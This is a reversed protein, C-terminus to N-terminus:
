LRKCLIVDRTPPVHLAEGTDHQHSEGASDPTVGYTEGFPTPIVDRTAWDLEPNMTQESTHNHKESGEVATSPAGGKLFVRGTSAPPSFVMKEYGPPCSIGYAFVITGKPVAEAAPDGTYPLPGLDGVSMQIAGVDIECLGALDIKSVVISLSKLQNIGLSVLTSPRLWEESLQADYVVIDTTTLLYAYQARIVVKAAGRKIRLSMSIMVPTNCIAQCGITIPDPDIKNRSSGLRGWDGQTWGVHLNEMFGPQIFREIFEQRLVVEETNSLVFRFFNSAGAEIIPDQGTLITFSNVPPVGGGTANLIEWYPPVTVADKLFDLGGNRILNIANYASAFRTMM